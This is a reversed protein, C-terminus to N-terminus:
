YNASTLTSRCKIIRIAIEILKKQDIHFFYMKLDGKGGLTERFYQKRSTKSKSQKLLCASTLFTNIQENM